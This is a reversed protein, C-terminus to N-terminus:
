LGWCNFSTIPKRTPTTPEPRVVILPVDKFKIQYENAYWRQVIDKIYSSSLKQTGPNHLGIVSINDKKVIIDEHYGNGMETLLSMADKPTILLKDPIGGVRYAEDIINSISITIKNNLKLLM